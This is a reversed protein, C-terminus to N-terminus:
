PILYRLQQANAQFARLDLINRCVGPRGGKYVLCHSGYNTDM